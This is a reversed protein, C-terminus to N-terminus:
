HEQLVVWVQRGRAGRQGTCKGKCLVSTGQPAPHARHCLWYSWSGHQEKCKGLCSLRPENISNSLGRWQALNLSRPLGPAIECGVMEALGQRNGQGCTPSGETPLTCSGLCGCGLAWPQQRGCWATVLRTNGERLQIELGAGARLLASHWHSPSPAPLGTLSLSDVKLCFLLVSTWVLSM